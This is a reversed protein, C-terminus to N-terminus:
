SVPDCASENVNEIAKEDAVWAKKEADWKLVSSFDQPTCKFKKGYREKYGKRTGTVQVVLKYTLWYRGGSQNFKPKGEVEISNVDFDPRAKKWAETFIKVAEETSPAPPADASSLEEVNGVATRDFQWGDGALRYIVPITFRARTKNAREVTVLTEQRWYNSGSEETFQPDGKKEIKLVKEKYPSSEWQKKVQAEVDAWAPVSASKRAQPNALMASALFPVVLGAAVFVGYARM